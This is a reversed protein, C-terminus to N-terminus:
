SFTQFRAVGDGGGGDSIRGGGRGGWARMGVRDMFWTAVSAIGDNPLYFWLFALPVLLVLDLYSALSLM